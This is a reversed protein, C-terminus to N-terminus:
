GVTTDGGSVALPPAPTEAAAPELPVPTAQLQVPVPVTPQPTVTPNLPTVQPVFTIQQEPGQPHSGQELSSAWSMPSSTLVLLGALVLRLRVSPQGNRGEESNM